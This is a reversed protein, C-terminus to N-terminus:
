KQGPAAAGGAFAPLIRTEHKDAAAPRGHVADGLPTRAVAMTRQIEPRRERQPWQATVL